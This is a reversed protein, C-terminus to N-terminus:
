SRDTYARYKRWQQYTLSIAPNIHPADLHVVSGCKAALISWIEPVSNIQTYDITKLLNQQERDTIQYPYSALRSTTM